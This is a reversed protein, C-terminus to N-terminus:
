RVNCRRDPPRALAVAPPRDFDDVQRREADASRPSSPAAVDDWGEGATGIFRFYHKQIVDVSNGCYVAVEAPSKGAILAQSIFTHRAAYFPRYRIEEAFETLLPKWVKFSFNHLDLPRGRPGLFVYDDPQHELGALPAFGAMALRTLKVERRSHVTKGPTVGAEGRSRAIRMWKRPLDVDRWTLGLLEGPRAGTGFAVMVFYLYPSHRRRLETLIADREAVSFPTRDENATERVRRIAAYLTTRFGPPVEGEIEADRLFARLSGHVVANVTRASLGRALMGRQVAVIHAPRLAAFTPQPGLVSLLHLGIEAARQRRYRGSVLSGAEGAGWRHLFLQMDSQDPASVYKGYAKSALDPRATPPPKDRYDVM